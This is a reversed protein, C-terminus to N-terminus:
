KNFEPAATITAVGTVHEEEAWYGAVPAMALLTSCAAEYAQMRARVAEGTPNPSGWM